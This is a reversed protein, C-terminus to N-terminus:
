RGGGGGGGGGGGVIFRNKSYRERERNRPIAPSLWAAQQLTFPDEASNFLRWIRFSVPLGMYPM